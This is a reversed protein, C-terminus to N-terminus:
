FVLMVGDKTIEVKNKFDKLPLARSIDEINGVNIRFPMERNKPSSVTLRWEKQYEYCNSKTFIDCVGSYSSFDKYKVRDYNPKMILGESELKRLANRLRSDMETLNTIILMTDVDKFERVRDDFIKNDDRIRDNECLCSLCFIHTAQYEDEAPDYVHIPGVTYILDNNVKLTTRNSQLIRTYNENKDMRQKDNDLQKFYSVTNMYIVGKKQLSTIHESKSFKVAVLIRDGDSKIMSIARDGDILQYGCNPCSSATESIQKNCEPCMILAM